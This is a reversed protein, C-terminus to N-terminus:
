WFRRDHRRYFRAAEYYHHMLLCGDSAVRIDCPPKNANDLAVTRDHRAVLIKKIWKTLILALKTFKDRDVAASIIMALNVAQTIITFM